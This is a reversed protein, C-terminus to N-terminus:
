RGGGFMFTRDNETVFFLPMDGGTVNIRVIKGEPLLGATQVNPYSANAWMTTTYATPPVRTGNALLETIQVPKAGTNLVDVSAPSVSVIEVLMVQELVQQEYKKLRDLQSDSRDSLEGLGAAYLVTFFIGTLGFLMVYQILQNM